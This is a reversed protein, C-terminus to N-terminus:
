LNQTFFRYIESYYICLYMYDEESLGTEPRAIREDAEMDFKCSYYVKRYAEFQSRTITVVKGKPLITHEWVQSNHECTRVNGLMAAYLPDQLRALIAEKSNKMRQREEKREQKPAKNSSGIKSEVQSKAIKKLSNPM